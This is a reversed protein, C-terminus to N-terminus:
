AGLKWMGVPICRDSSRVPPPDESRSRSECSVIIIRRPCVYPELYAYILERSKKYRGPPSNSKALLYAPELCFDGFPVMPGLDDATFDSGGWLRIPELTGIIGDEQSVGLPRVDALVPRTAIFRSNFGGEAAIEHGEPVISRRRASLCHNHSRLAAYTRKGFRPSSKWRVRGRSSLFNLRRPLGEAIL